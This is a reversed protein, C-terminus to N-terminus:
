GQLAVAWGYLARGWSAWHPFGHTSALTLLVQSLECTRQVERCFQALLTAYLLAYGLNYPASLAHALTVAEDSRTRAQEPYGLHWLICSLNASAAVKIDQVYLGTTAHAQTPDYYALSQELHSRALRLRHQCLMNVGLVQHAVTLFAPEQAEEAVQLLQTALEQ